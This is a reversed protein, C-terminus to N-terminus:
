HLAQLRVICIGMLIVISVVSSTLRKFDGAIIKLINRM